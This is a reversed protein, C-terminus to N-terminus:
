KEQPYQRMYERNGLRSAAGMLDAAAKSYHSLKSPVPVLKSPVPKLGYM